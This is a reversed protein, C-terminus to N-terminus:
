TAMESVCMSCSEKSIGAPTAAELKACSPTKTSPLPMPRVVLLFDVM